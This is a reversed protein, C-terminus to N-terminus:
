FTKVSFLYVAVLLLVVSLQWLRVKDEVSEEDDPEYSEGFVSKRRSNMADRYSQPPELDEEDSETISFIFMYSPLLCWYPMLRPINM